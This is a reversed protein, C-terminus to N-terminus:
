EGGYALRTGADRRYVDDRFAIRTQGPFATLYTIYVPVLTPLDVRQEPSKSTPLSKGLLWRGLRDADRLVCYRVCEQEFLELVRGVLVGGRLSNPAVVPPVIGENNPGERNVISQDM